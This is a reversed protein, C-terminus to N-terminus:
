KKKVLMWITYLGAVGILIYVVRAFWAVTGLLLDVLDLNFIGVLGWNVAGIIILIWAIWDLWNMEM